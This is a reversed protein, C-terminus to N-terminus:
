TWVRVNKRESTTAIGYRGNASFEGSGDTELYSSDHDFGTRNIRIRMFLLRVEM